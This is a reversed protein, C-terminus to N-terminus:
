GRFAQRSEVDFGRRTKCQRPAASIECSVPDRLRATSTLSIDRNRGPIAGWTVCAKVSPSCQDLRLAIVIRLNSSILRKIPLNPGGDHDWFEPPPRTSPSAVAAIPHWGPRGHRSSPPVDPAWGVRHGRHWGARCFGCFGQQRAYEAPGFASGRHCRGPSPPGVSYGIGTQHAGGWLRDPPPASRTPTGWGPSSLLRGVAAGVRGIPPWGQSQGRGPGPTGRRGSVGRKPPTTSAPRPRM